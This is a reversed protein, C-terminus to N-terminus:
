TELGIEVESGCTFHARENYITDLIFMRICVYAMVYTSSAYLGYNVAHLLNYFYIAYADNIFKKECRRTYASSVATSEPTELTNLCFLTQQVYTM